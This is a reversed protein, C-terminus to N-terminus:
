RWSTIMWFKLALGSVLIAAAGSGSRSSSSHVIATALIRNPGSILIWAGGLRLGPTSVRITSAPILSQPPTDGRM